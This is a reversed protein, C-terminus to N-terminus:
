LVAGKPIVPNFPNIKVKGLGGCNWCNTTSLINNSTWTRGRGFCHCCFVGFYVFRGFGKCRLCDVIDGRKRRFKGTGNCIRCISTKNGTGHCKPCKHYVKKLGKQKRKGKCIPCTNYLAFIDENDKEFDGFAKEQELPTVVLNKLNTYAEILKQTKEKSNPRKNIDSHVKKILKRFNTKLAETTFPYDNLNLIKMYQKTSEGITIRM